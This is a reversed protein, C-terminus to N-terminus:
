IGLMGRFQNAMRVANDYQQQSVKGSNLLQQVQEKPDGRFSNRFQQFQQLINNQPRLQQYLQNM